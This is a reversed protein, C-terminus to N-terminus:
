FGSNIMEGGDKTAMAQRTKMDLDEFLFRVSCDCFLVHFGGRFASQKLDRNLFYSMDADSPEMWHVPHDKGAEMVLITNSTGDVIDRLTTAKPGSFIGKPDVIAQYLTQGPPLDVGPTSFVKINANRVAANEPADWPKSFDVQSFLASEELFPLIATRWSHLKNGEADVTYAPPLQRYTSEYNLLALGINRINSSSEMRMAAERAAQVAPLLLAVLVGCCMLGGFGVVGLLVVWLVTNSSKPPKPALSEAQNYPNANSM